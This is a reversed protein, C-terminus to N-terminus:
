LKEISSGTARRVFGWYARRFAQEKEERTATNEHGHKAMYERLLAECDTGFPAGTGGDVRQLSGSPADRNARMVIERTKKHSLERSEEPMTPYDFATVDDIEALADRLREIEAQQATQPLECGCAACYDRAWWSPIKATCNPCSDTM